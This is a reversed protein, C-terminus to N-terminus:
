NEGAERSGSGERSHGFSHYNLILIQALYNKVTSSSRKQAYHKFM